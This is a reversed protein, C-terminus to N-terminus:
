NKKQTMIKNTSFILRFLSGLKLLTQVLAQRVLLISYLPLTEIPSIEVYSSLNNLCADQM